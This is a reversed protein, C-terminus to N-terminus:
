RGLPRSERSEVTSNSPVTQCHLIFWRGLFVTQHPVTSRLPQSPDASSHHIPPPSPDAPSSQTPPPEISRRILPPDSPPAISRRLLTSDSPARHIPLLSRREASYSSAPGESRLQRSGVRRIDIIASIFDGVRFRFSFAIHDCSTSLRESITNLLLTISFTM